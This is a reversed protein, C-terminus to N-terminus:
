RAAAGPSTRPRGNKGTPKVMIGQRHPQYMRGTKREVLTLHAMQTDMYLINMIRVRFEVSM